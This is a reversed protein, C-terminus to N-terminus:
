GRVEASNSFYDYILATHRVLSSSFGCFFLFVGGQSVQLKGELPPLIPQESLLMESSGASCGRTKSTLEQQWVGVSDFCLLTDWLALPVQSGEGM